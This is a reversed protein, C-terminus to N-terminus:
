RHMDAGQRVVMFRWMMYQFISKVWVAFDDALGRFSSNMEHIDSKTSFGKRTQSSASRRNQDYYIHIHAHTHIYWNKNARYFYCNHVDDKFVDFCQHSINQRCQLYFCILGLFRSYPPYQSFLLFGYSGVKLFFTWCKIYSLTKIFNFFPEHISFFLIKAFIINWLKTRELSKM